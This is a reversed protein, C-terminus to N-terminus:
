SMMFHDVDAVTRLLKSEDVGYAQALDVSASLLLKNNLDFDFAIATLRGLKDFEATIGEILQRHKADLADLYVAMENRIKNAEQSAMGQALQLMMKGSISGVLGGLIPVPILTQGAVTALGVIASEACVFLGLDVFEESTIRGAALDSSLVALGKTASVIASAFPASMDAFNTLAYIAGGSVAGGGFGKATTLGVDKWDDATFDGHFPNKGQKYKGYLATGLSITAAVGGAIAAAQAMGALSPAHEQIIEEDKEASAEKLKDEHSDLTEDIAGLQAEPYAVISPQVAEQFSKGTLEEILRVKERIAEITSAKLGEVHEGNLIKLIVEYQDKPIVYGGAKAFTPYSDIHSLVHALGNNLGNIFKSQIEQGNLFYDAAATRGVGDFTAPPVLGSVFAWANRLHVDCMEAVEGHKTQISGLINEPTQLAERIKNIQALADDLAKANGELAAAQAQERIKNLADVVSGTLQDWISHSTPVKRM